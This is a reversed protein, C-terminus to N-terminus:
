CIKKCFIEWFYLLRFNFSKELESSIVQFLSQLDEFEEEGIGLEEKSFVM